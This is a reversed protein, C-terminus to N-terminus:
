AACMLLQPDLCNPATLPASANVQIVVSMDSQFTIQAEGGVTTAVIVGATPCNDGSPVSLVTQTALTVAGGFCPSQMGGNVTLITASGSSDM